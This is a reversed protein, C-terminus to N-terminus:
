PQTAEEAQCEFLREVEAIVMVVVIVIVIYDAMDEDDGFM